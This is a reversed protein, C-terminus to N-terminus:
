GADSANSGDTNAKLITQYVNNDDVLTIAKGPANGSWRVFLANIEDRTWYSDLPLESPTGSTILSRLITLPYKITTKNSSGDDFQIYVTADVSTTSGSTFATAMAATNLDVSGAIATGDVTGLVAPGALTTGDATKVILVTVAWGSCDVISYPNSSRVGSPDIMLTQVSLCMKDQHFPSAFFADASGFSNAVFKRNTLDAFIPIATV